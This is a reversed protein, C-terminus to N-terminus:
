MSMCESVRGKLYEHAAKYNNQSREFAYGVIRKNLGYKKAIATPTTPKGDADKYDYFVRPERQRKIDYGGSVMLPRGLKSRELCYQALSTM